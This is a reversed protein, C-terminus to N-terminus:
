KILLHRRYAEKLFESLVSVFGEPDPLPIVKDSNHPKLGINKMGITIRNEDFVYEFVLDCQNGTQIHIM